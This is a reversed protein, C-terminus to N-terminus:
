LFKKHFIQFQQIRFSGLRRTIARQGDAVLQRLLPGHEVVDEGIHPASVDVMAENLRVAANRDPATADGRALM